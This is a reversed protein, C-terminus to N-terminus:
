DVELCSCHRQLSPAPSGPSRIHRATPMAGCGGASQTISCRPLMTLSLVQAPTSLLQCDQRLPPSHQEVCQQPVAHSAYLPALTRSCHADTHVRTIAQWGTRHVYHSVQENHLVQSSTWMQVPTTEAYDVISYDHVPTTACAEDSIDHGLVHILTRPDALASLTAHHQRLILACQM